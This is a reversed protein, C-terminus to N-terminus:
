QLTRPESRSGAPSPPCLREHRSGHLAGPPYRATVRQALQRLDGRALTKILKPQGVLIIQLLKETTTELNTLLRVQELVEVSLDQAEDLILVTRRRRTHADLLYGYLADVFV